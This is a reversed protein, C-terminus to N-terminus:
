RGRNPSAVFPPLRLAIVWGSATALYCVDGVFSPVSIRGLEAAPPLDGRQVVIKPVEAAPRLQSLDIRRVIAGTGPDFAILEGKQSGGYVRNDKEVSSAWTDSVPHRWLVEGDEVRLGYRFARNETILITGGAVLRTGRLWTEDGPHSIHGTRVHGLDTEVTETPRASQRQPPEPRFTWRREGTKADYCHLRGDWREEVRPRASVFVHHRIRRPGVDHLGPVPVEWATTGDVTRLAFLHPVEGVTGGTYVLELAPNVCPPTTARGKGVDAVWLRKGKLSLAMCYRWPTTVFLRKLDPVLLTALRSDSQDALPIDQTFTGEGMRHIRQRKGSDGDVDALTHSWLLGGDHIRYAALGDSPRHAYVVDGLVGPVDKYFVGVKVWLRKGSRYDLAILGNDGRLLVVSRDAYIGPRTLVCPRERRWWLLRVRGLKDVLMRVRLRVELDPSRGVHSELVTFAEHGHRRVYAELESQARQRDEYDEAGLQAVLDNIQEDHAVASSCLLLLLVNRVCPMM